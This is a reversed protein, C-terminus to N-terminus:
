LWQLIDYSVFFGSLLVTVLGSLQIHKVYVKDM